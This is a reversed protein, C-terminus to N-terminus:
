DGATGLHVIGRTHQGARSLAISFPRGRHDHGKVGAGDASAKVGKAAFADLFYRQVDRPLADAEFRVTYGGESEGEEGSIKMDLVRSGPYLAVGDIDIDGGSLKIGPLAITGRVGPLDISFGSRGGDAGNGSDPTVAAEADNDNQTQAERDDRDGCAGLMALGTLTLIFRRYSTTRRGMEIAANRAM